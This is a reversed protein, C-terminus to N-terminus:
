FNFRGTVALIRTGGAGTIRGFTASNIDTVPNNWQPSNTANEADLYFQLDKRENIRMRKGIRVDLRFSGPGYAINDSMNGITGPIPNRMVLNGNADAIAFLASSTRINQLTTLQQRYPDEVIKLGSFYQVGNGGVNVAFADRNLVGALDANNDASFNNFSQRSSTFSIPVGTFLNYIASFEWGGVVRDLAPTLDSLYRQGRGLPLSYIWNSRFVHTRHFDLVRKDFSRNRNTRYSNLLDQGAGEEDGITRSWTWNAQFMFNRSLHRTGEVQLSHFTSNSFNGVYQVGSFQPNAVVFNEPLGARRLLSGPLGAFTSSNLYSAITGVNNNAFAAPQLFRIAASGTRGNQGNVVGFGSINLGGFVRDFLAANGGAQTVNYADLIGNEFINVENISTARYLRTGKSGVYRVDLTVKGPLRHTISANWNQVYPYVLGSDWGYLTQGRDTLPVVALPAATPSLAPANAFNLASTSRNNNTVRLGPVDAAYVDLNRLSNREYGIGYGLRLVTEGTFKPLQWTLGVAPAFNNRDAPMINRGPNPSNRGILHVESLSGNLVGPQFLASFDTGSLGFLGASGNKLAAMRGLAEYPVGYYDWRLGLNLTLNRRIRWDDKFYWSLERQRWTRQRPEGAVFQPNAGGTANFAQVKNNLTGTLDNLINIATGNNQGIGPISTIPTAPLVGSGINARPVVSFSNFGNTSTFRVGFGAKLNHSGKTMAVSDNFEYVPSIRGQPDQDVLPNTFSAFVPFFVNQGQQGLADRGVLEWPSNFRVWPRNFGLRVQNLVRSSLTSDVGVSLFHTWSTVSGGPATPYPQAQFGNSQDDSEYQWSVDMRHKSNFNHDVKARYMNFTYLSPRSWTFGATNLGDGFRYNNPLPSFGIFRRATGTPDAASRAPDYAFLNITQLDGTAAAPRIPNGNLDVTPVAAEANGNRAGPFYRFQGNRAPQTLVTTNVAGKTSSRIGEYNVHFFTKNKRIPGGLRGGYNNRILQNRPSIPNGNRDLGRQNNFWTNANLITNRHLEFISGHYENSGSRTRAQIQGSGRGYEADAPSTIVRFEEITDVSALSTSFIGSNIRNDQVNIGDITINLAGIRAGSFNGSVTGAQLTTFNLVNRSVVPLKLVQEGRIVGGISSSVTNILPDASAVVDITEGVQSPGLQFNFSLRAGIELTVDAIVQTQFGTMSAALKYRGTALSPFSYVGSNNTLSESVIGTDLNTAVVIAQVLVAETKDTVLGSVSAAPNQALVAFAAALFAASLRSFM